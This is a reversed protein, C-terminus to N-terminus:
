VMRGIGRELWLPEHRQQMRARQHLRRRLFRKLFTELRSGGYERKPRHKSGPRANLHSSTSVTIAAVLLYPSEKPRSAHSAPTVPLANPGPRVNSHISIPLQKADFKPVISKLFRVVGPRKKKIKTKEICNVTFM